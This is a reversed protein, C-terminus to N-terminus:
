VGLVAFLEQLTENCMDNNVNVIYDAIERYLVDRTQYLDQLKQLQNDGQLLPRGRSLHVRKSLEQASAHLYIVTGRTSLFHRNKPNLVAGGGTALVINNRLTLEEIIATERTRFGQEGELAFITPIDVGCRETLFVDADIFDYSIHQALMKGLTTKGAGPLGVLFFNGTMKMIVPM